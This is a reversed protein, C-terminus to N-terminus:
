DLAMHLLSTGPDPSVSPGAYLSRVSSVIIRASALARYPKLGHRHLRTGHAAPWTVRELGASHRRADGLRVQRRLHSPKGQTIFPYGGHIGRSSALRFSPRGDSVPPEDEAEPAGAKAARAGHRQPRGEMKTRMRWVQGNIGGHVRLQALM